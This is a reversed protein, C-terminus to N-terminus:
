TMPAWSSKVTILLMQPQLCLSCFRSFATVRTIFQARDGLAAQLSQQLVATARGAKNWSTAGLAALAWLRMSARTSMVPKMNCGGILKSVVAASCQRTRSRCHIGPAGQRSLERPSETAWSHMLVREWLMETTVELIWPSNLSLQIMLSNKKFCISWGKLQPLQQLLFNVLFFPNTPRADTRRETM